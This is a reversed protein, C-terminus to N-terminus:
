AFNKGMYETTQSQKQSLKLSHRTNSYRMYNDDAHDQPPRKHYLHYGLQDVVGISIDNPLRNEVFDLDQFGWGVFKENMGGVSNFLETNVIFSFKGTQNNATYDGNVRTVGTTILETSEQEPLFLVSNFPRILDCRTTKMYDLITSYKTYFDADIVWVYESSITKVAHNILTAKHIVDSEDINLKEYRTNTTHMCGGVNTDSHQECVVVECNTAVVNELVFKFNRLRLGSLKFIPIIITLSEGRM